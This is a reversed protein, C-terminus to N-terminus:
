QSMIIRQHKNGKKWSKGAASSKSQTIRHRSWHSHTQSVYGGSIVNPLLHDLVGSPRNEFLSKFNKTKKGRHRPLLGGMEAWHLMQNIWHWTVNISKCWSAETHPYVDPAGDAGYPQRKNEEATAMRHEWSDGGSNVGCEWSTECNDSIVSRPALISLSISQNM